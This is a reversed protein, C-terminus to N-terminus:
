RLDLGVSASPEPTPAPATHAVVKAPAILKDYAVQQLLFQQLLHGGAMWLNATTLNEVILRGADPEYHWTIGVTTLAALILSLVRNIKKTDATIPLWPVKTKLFEIAYVVALASTAHAALEPTSEGLIM